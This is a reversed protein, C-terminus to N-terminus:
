ALQKGNCGVNISGSVRFANNGGCDHIDCNEFLVNECDDIDVAGYTCDYIETNKVLIDACDSAIIGLIGCGFLSCDTVQVGNSGEFLLVGGSCDSPAQTHGATIGTLSVNECDEYSLVDAYRPEALISTSDAGEGVLHFNELGSLILEPGDYTNRWKYYDSGGAGYGSAVSLDYDGAALYVTTNPGIAALLEDVNTVTVERMGDANTTENLEVTEVAAPGDYVSEELTMAELDERSLVTGEPSVPQVAEGGEYYVSGGFWNPAQNESFVCGDVVPSSSESAFVASNFTNEAVSTGLLYVEQSYDVSMLAACDNGYVESNVVAAGYTNLFQFLGYGECDYVSCDVVRVDRCSETQVAGYSCEYIATDEALINDCDVAQIGLVGCGYLASGRVTFGETGDLYLVGGMCVGPEITHGATINEVTVNACDEFVIVDAYRPVASLIVEAAATGAITLNEVEELVLEWGDHTEDWTYWGGEYLTGYDTAASLDYTGPELRITTDSAIAALFEDVTSVTVEGGVPERSAQVPVPEAELEEAMQAALAAELEATMEEETMEASSEQVAQPEQEVTVACGCLLLLAAMILALLSLTPHKYAM